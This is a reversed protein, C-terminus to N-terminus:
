IQRYLIKKLELLNSATQTNSVIHTEKEAELSGLPDRVDNIVEIMRRCFEFKREKLLQNILRVVLVVLDRSDTVFQDDQALKLSEKHVMQELEMSPIELKIEKCIHLFTDVLQARFYEEGIDICYAM